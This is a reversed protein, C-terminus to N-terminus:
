PPNLVKALQCAEGNECSALPTDESGDFHMLLVTANDVDPDRKSIITREVSSDTSNLYFWTSISFPPGGTQLPSTTARVLAESNTAIFESANGRIGPQSMVTNYDSLVNGGIEDSRSDATENLKWYAQINTSLGSSSDLTWGATATSGLQLTNQTSCGYRKQISGDFNWKIDMCNPSYGLEKSIIRDKTILGKNFDDITIAKKSQLM